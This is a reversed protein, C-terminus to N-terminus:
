VQGMKWKLYTEVIDFGCLEKVVPMTAPVDLQFPKDIEKSNRWSHLQKRAEKIAARIACHVTTALLLPPEGSAKSSLVRHKHHGSNVIEVNLQKPITDLSPIKYNWTGDQLILGEPNTEYEELMFFGMITPFHDKLRF